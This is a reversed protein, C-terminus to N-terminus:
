RLRLRAILPHHDSNYTGEVRAYSGTVVREAPSGTGRFLIHDTPFGGRTPQELPPPSDRFYTRLHRLATERQSWTNLDGAAIAPIEGQESEITRLADLLGSAERYRSANGTTLIRWPRATSLFHVSAVRLTAGGPATLTAVVSIRRAGEFPLEVVAPDSLPLTSLIANGKEERLGDRVDPGNRAAAAYFLSLGCRRAVEVVDLRPTPRDSEVVTAPIAPDGVPPNPIDAGRRLAEQLLLVFHRDSSTSPDDCAHGLEDGLFRLMEGAGANPNWTSILLPAPNEETPLHEEPRGATPEPVFVPAGVTLCWRELQRADGEHEPRYWSIEALGRQDTMEPCTRGATVSRSVTHSPVCGAIVVAGLTVVIMSGVAARARALRSTGNM